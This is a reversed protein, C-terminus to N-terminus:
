DGPRLPAPVTWEPSPAGGRSDGDILSSIHGPGSHGDKHTRKAAREADTTITGGFYLASLAQALAPDSLGTNQQLDAFTRPRAALERLVALHADKVLRMPVTPPRRFYILGSRYRPPLLNAGTRLAYQWMLEAVSWRHFDPPADKAAAPRGRWEAQRVDMTSASPRVAVTGALDILAVLSDHLHLHYVPSTLKPRMRVFAEALTMQVALPQLWAEFRQFVGAISEVDHPDFAHPAEIGPALPVTFAVPRDVERLNFRVARSTPEAAPVRVFGGPLLQAHAGNIWLADAELFPWPYWRVAVSRSALLRGLHEKRDAAFGVLGMRLVPSGM